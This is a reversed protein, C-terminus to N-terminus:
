KKLDELNKAVIEKTMEKFDDISLAALDIEEEEPKINTNTDTDTDKTGLEKEIETKNKEKTEFSKLMEQLRTLNEQSLSNDLSKLQDIIKDILTTEVEACINRLDKLTVPKKKKMDKSEENNNNDEVKELDELNKDELELDKAKITPTSTTKLSKLTLHYKEFDEISLFTDDNTDLSYECWNYLHNLNIGEAKAVALAEQNAPVPVPSWEFLEQEKFDIGGERGKDDSWDWKKSRFGASVAKMFGEVYMRYITHGFGKGLPHDMDEPTFQATGLLQKKGKRSIWTEVPKAIPPLSSNHSWLIVGSKKFEKLKWGNPNVTDGGRDVAGTSIVAQLMREKGKVKKIILTDDEDDEDGDDDSAEIFATKTIILDSSPTEDQLLLNKYVQATVHRPM